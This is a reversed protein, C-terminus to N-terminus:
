KKGHATIEDKKRKTSERGQGREAGGSSKSKKNTIETTDPAWM